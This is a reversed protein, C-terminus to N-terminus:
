FLRALHEVGSQVVSNLGDVLGPRSSSRALSLNHVRSSNDVSVAWLNCLVVRGYNISVLVLIRIRFVVDVALCSPIISELM